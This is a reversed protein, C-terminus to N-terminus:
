LQHGNNFENMMQQLDLQHQEMEKQLQQMQLQLEPTWNKMSDEIQRRMDDMEKQSPVSSEVQRKMEEMEKPSPVSAEIQHKMEDFDKQSPMSDRLQQQMEALEKQRPLSKELDRHMKALDKAAPKTSKAMDRAMKEMDKKQQKMAKEIERQMQELEKDSPGLQAIMQGQNPAFEQQSQDLEPRMRELQDRLTQAETDFNLWDQNELRSSDHPGPVALVVTQEHKDRLISLTLKTAQTQMARQWDSIDHVEDNNIRLVVDGAKLGAAAAASGREVSRVLLGRGRPAGFFEALQPSLSEVVLGHRISLMAVSPIEADPVYARPAAMPPFMAMGPPQSSRAHPSVTWTGLTVNVNQQQGNRVITLVVQKSPPASHIFGTLQEASEVKAGNFAIVVDNELLGARCAPGDHDVLIIVAGFSDKLKLEAARDATVSTIQVGLYAASHDPWGPQGSTPEAVAALVMALAFFTGLSVAKCKQM